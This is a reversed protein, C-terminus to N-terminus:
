VVPEGIQVILKKGNVWGDQYDPPEPDGVQDAYIEVDDWDMNNSAWDIIERKSEKFLKSAEAIAENMGDYESAHNKAWDLAIVGVPVHWISDDPMEVSVCKGTLWSPKVLTLANELVRLNLDAIKYYSESAAVKDGRGLTTFDAEVIYGEQGLDSIVRDGIQFKM